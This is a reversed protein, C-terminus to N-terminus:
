HVFLANRRGRNARKRGPLPFQQVFRDRWHGASQSHWPILEVAEDSEFEELLGVRIHEVGLIGAPRYLCLWEGNTLPVNHEERFHRKLSSRLKKPKYRTRLTLTGLVDEMTFAARTEPKLISM